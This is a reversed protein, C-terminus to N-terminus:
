GAMYWANCRVHDSCAAFGPTIQSLLSKYTAAGAVEGDRILGSQVAKFGVALRAYLQAREAQLGQFSALLQAAHPAADPPKGCNLSTSAMNVSHVPTPLHIASASSDPQSICTIGCWAFV